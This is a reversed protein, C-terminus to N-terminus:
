HHFQVAPEVFDRRDDHGRVGAGAHGHVSAKKPAHAPPALERPAARAFAVGCIFAVIAPVVFAARWGVYKVLLGTTVAALAVGLNGSLGNVGITLGPRRAGRVLMPIGVPHYISSFAGLLTLAAALQWANRTLAVLLASGSMGFFFLLM